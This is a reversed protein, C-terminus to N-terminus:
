ANQLKIKMLEVLRDVVPDLDGALVSQLSFNKVDGELRHDTVRSDPWNYTRIRQSRDGSGMQDSRM